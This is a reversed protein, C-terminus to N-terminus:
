RLQLRLRLRLWFTGSVAECCQDNGTGQPRQAYGAGFSHHLIRGRGAPAAPSVAGRGCDPRAAVARLGHQALPLAPPFVLPPAIVVHGAVVFMLQAAAADQVRYRFVISTGIHCFYKFSLSLIPFYADTLYVSKPHCFGLTASGATSGFNNQPAPAPVSATILM